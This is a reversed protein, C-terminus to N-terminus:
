ALVRRLSRLTTAALLMLCASGPEPLITGTLELTLTQSGSLGAGAYGDADSLGLTYTASYHGPAHDTNFSALFSYADQIGSPLATFEGNGLDTFLTGLDGSGSISDFDLEATFGATQLVNHVAEAVSQVGSGRLFSGFDITATTSSNSLFAGSSPDYVNAFYDVTVANPSESALGEGMVSLAVSGSKAGATAFAGAVQRNSTDTAGDFLQSAGAAVTVFGDSASTGDVAVRTNHDDDGSTTLESQQSSTTAGVIVNGLNVVSANITRNAVVTATVATADNPDASGQGAGASNAATNDVSATFSKPGTVGSGNANSQLQIDIAESQDGAAIVGDATVAIGSNSASVAYTTADVGTKSLNASITPTAGAMVRGFAASAPATIASNNGAVAPLVDGNFTFDNVSFTGGSNTTNFAYLRFTIPAAVANFSAGSLDLNFAVESASGTITGAVLNGLYNDLSSRLAYNNPGTGSRQWTGTLSAFDILFGSGPTLTWSFYADPDLSTTNWSSANYRNGASAATAGSGRGIGSASLNSAVTQGATYPNAASPNTDAIPNTYIVAAHSATAALAVAIPALAGRLLSKM